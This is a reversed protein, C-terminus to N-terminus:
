ILQAVREAHFPAGIELFLDHAKQLEEQPSWASEFAHAFEARCEHLFPEFTRAGTEALIGAAENILQKAAAANAVQIHVRASVIWPLLTM